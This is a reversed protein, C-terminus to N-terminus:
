GPHRIMDALVRTQADDLRRLRTRKVVGIRWLVAQFQEDTLGLERALRGVTKTQPVGRPEVLVATARRRESLADPASAAAPEPTMSASTTGARATDVSAHQEEARRALAVADLYPATSARRGSRPARPPQPVPPPTRKARRREPADVLGAEALFPSPRGPDHYVELRRGARTFAVCALRREAEIGEGRAQAEADVALARAHPLTGDDCGFVVVM